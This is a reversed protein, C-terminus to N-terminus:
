SGCPEEPIFVWTGNELPVVVTPGQEKLAELMADAGAEFLGGMINELSSAKFQADAACTKLMADRVEVWLQPRWM